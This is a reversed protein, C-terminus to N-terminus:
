RGRYLLRVSKHTEEEWQSLDSAKKHQIQGFRSLGQAFEELSAEQVKVQKWGSKFAGGNTSLLCEPLYQM